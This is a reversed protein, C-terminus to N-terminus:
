PCPLHPPLLPFDGEESSGCRCPGVWPPAGDLSLCEPSRNGLLLSNGKCFDSRGSPRVPCFSLRPSYAGSTSGGM